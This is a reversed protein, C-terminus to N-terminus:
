STSCSAWGSSTPAAISTAAWRRSPRWTGPRARSSAAETETSREFATAIGFDILKVAGDFATMINAPTVDRHVIGLPRCAADRREHAHHLAMATAEVVTLAFDLPLRVGIAEAERLVTQVTHGHVTGMALLYREDDLEILDYVQAIGQHHLTALVRAEDLFMSKVIVHRVFGAPGSVRALYVDAMGGSGM